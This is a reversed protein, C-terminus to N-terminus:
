RVTAKDLIIADPRGFDQELPVCELVEKIYVAGDSTQMKTAPLRAMEIVRKNEAWKYFGIENGFSTELFCKYEIFDKQADAIAMPSILLTFMSLYITNKMVLM